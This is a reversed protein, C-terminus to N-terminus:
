YNMWYETHYGNSTSSFRYTLKYEWWSDVSVEGAMLLHETSNINCVMPFHRHSHCKVQVLILPSSDNGGNATSYMTILKVKIIYM